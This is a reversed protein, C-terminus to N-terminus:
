GPGREVLAWLLLFSGVVVAAVGAMMLTGTQFGGVLFHGALRAVVAFVMLLLGLLGILQGGRTCMTLM